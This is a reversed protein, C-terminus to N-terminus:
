ELAFWGPQARVRDLWAKVAPFQALDHGAEPAMQTYAFLAIDAVSYGTGVFWQRDALHRELVRLASEARPRYHEFVAEPQQISFHKWARPLGISLEVQNQEFFMWQQVLAQDQVGSPLLRSGRALYLLIANSEGLQFEGDVIYPVRGFPNVRRFEKARVAGGVIDLREARHPVALQKLLLRVKYTNGSVPADYFVLM